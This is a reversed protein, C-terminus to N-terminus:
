KHYVILMVIWFSLNSLLHQLEQIVPNWNYVHLNKRLDLKVTEYTMLKDFMKKNFYFKIINDSSTNLTYTIFM